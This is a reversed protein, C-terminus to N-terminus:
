VKIEAPLMLMKKYFGSFARSSLAPLRMSKSMMATLCGNHCPTCVQPPTVAKWSPYPTAFSPPAWPPHRVSLDV